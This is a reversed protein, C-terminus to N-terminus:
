CVDEAHEVPHPGIAGSLAGLQRYLERVRERDATYCVYAGKQHRHILGADVLVSLHHSALSPSMGVAQALFGATRTGRRLQRLVLLRHPEALVALDASVQEASRM